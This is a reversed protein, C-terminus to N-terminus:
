ALIQAWHDCTKKYRKIMALHETALEIENRKDGHARALKAARTTFEVQEQVSNKPASLWEAIIEGDASAFALDLIIRNINYQNIGILNAYAKASEYMSAPIHASVLEQSMAITNIASRGYVAIARLYCPFRTSYYECKHLIFIALIKIKDTGSTIDSLLEYPLVRRPTDTVVVVDDFFANIQGKTLSSPLTTFSVDHHGMALALKLTHRFETPTVETGYEHYVEENLAEIDKYDQLTKFQM